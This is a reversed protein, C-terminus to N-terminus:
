NAIDMVRVPVRRSRGDRTVMLEVTAGVGARELELAFDAIRAVPRGNVHTIIDGPSGARDQGQLGAQAAASGAEVRAIILGTAGFRAADEEGLALIGIGPRAIRGNRILAPVVRNVADVPVAFGVGAFVGTQSLIATTVGILRGASDLLPGGSNGPNIAADTQIVDAIERAGSTPLRRGLASIIGTTLTRDLGFPNGIAFVQQGVKLDASRGIPIPRLAARTDALRVVALDHDPATGVVTADVAEGTDLRVRVRRSGEVVHFNTVVHGAADWLFGSGAGRRGREGPRDGDTFLYVVSPSIAQFLQITHQETSSLDGRAAVTRPESQTLYLSRLFSDAVWITLLLLVWIAAYRVFRSSM